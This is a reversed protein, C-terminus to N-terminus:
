MSPSLRNTGKNWWIRSRPLVQGSVERRHLDIESQQMGGQLRLHLVRAVQSVQSILRLLEM